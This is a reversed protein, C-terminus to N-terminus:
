MERKFYLLGHLNCGITDKLHSIREVASTQLQRLTLYLDGSSVIPKHHVRLLFILIKVVIETESNVSHLLPILLQLLECVSSLPLLSLIEEFDSTKIKRLIVCFYEQDSKANFAMMIPPLSPLQINSRKCEQVEKRYEKLVEMCELLLEAGKEATVTKRSALHLTSCGPVATDTGTALTDEEEKERETEREDELVLPEFSKEFLRIVRDQGCTVVSDGNPSVAVCWSEGHHADITVIRQFNDADWQKLKGDKGTTFFYHTNPVFKLSTVTDEHAFLSKHCDGYDLGWIKVNRDASGTAILTSDYSIDLCTIPMKHGYLCLFFKFTDMFFIKVTSDLLAAAILNSDPSVCVQLVPDDLVLTKIHVLTLVNVSINDNQPKLLELNWIKVNCDGGGTVCGIKSPLISVSWLEKQHAEITEIIDGSSIDVILLSGNKLGALVYRDGPVFCVSLVYDTDVTRLCSLSTRNWIKVGTGSGSVIGVNDYGFALARVDSNHGAKTIVKEQVTEKTNEITISHFELSNNNLAAVTKIKGGEHWLDAYKVKSEHRVAALRTVLFKLSDPAINIDTSEGQESDKNKKRVKKMRKQYRRQAEEEPLFHFLELVKENGHCCLIQSSRDCSMSVVRGFGQRLISGVKECTIPSGYDISDETFNVESSSNDRIRWVRLESDNTGTVLFSDNKMLCFDWVETVHGTLTKFCHGNTLDWFKVLTDKSSSVLINRSNMFRVQTVSGKHGSLRFLGSEAVIDWVVIDTDKSGTAIRHGEEDFSICTIPSRHGSFTENEESNLENITLTGDSYGAAIKHSKPCAALFVCEHKEGEFVTVKKALRSDWIALDEAAGVAVYRNDKGDYNIFSINCKSSTIINFKGAPVFRLYQKTLKM